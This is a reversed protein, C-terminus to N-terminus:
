NRNMNPSASRAADKLRQPSFYRQKQDRLWFSAFREAPRANQIFDNVIWDVTDVLEAPSAADGIVDALHPHRGLKGGALIRASPESATIAHTPCISECTNCGLCATRDFLPPAGDVIIAQDPCADACGGCETCESPDVDPRVAGMVGIDAIQPRSCGNPCGSIAIRFKHHFLIRDETVRARLKENINNRQAWDEIAARWEDTDILANPCNSLKHHCSEIILLQAGEANEAPLMKKLEDESKGATVSKFRAEAEQFDANTVSAGGRAAVRENVKRRVMGRVFFPVRKLAQEAEQDWPLDQAPM